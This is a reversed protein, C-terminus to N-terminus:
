PLPSPRDVGCHTTAAQMVRTLMDLPMWPKALFEAGQPVTDTPKTFMGSTVIVKIHPWRQMTTRALALGDMNGPMRVDTFLLCVSDSQKELIALASDASAASLTKLGADDLFEVAMERVVAEDEVILVFESMAM